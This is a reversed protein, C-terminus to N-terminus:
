CQRQCLRSGNSAVDSVLPVTATQPLDSDMSSIGVEICAATIFHSKFITMLADFSAHMDKKPDKAQPLRGIRLFLHSLTAFDVSSIKFLDKWM